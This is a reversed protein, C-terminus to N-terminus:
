RPRGFRRRPQAQTATATAAAAARRTLLDLIEPRLARGIPVRTLWDLYDPDHEALREVTWGAYRGFDLTTSGVSSGDATGRSRRIRERAAAIPTTSMPGRGAEDTAPHGHRAANYAARRDARGLVAWAENLAAMVSPDGGFDPHHRRARERYAAQITARSADPRVGLVAYFDHMLSLKLTPHAGAGQGSTVHGVLRIPARGRGFVAM